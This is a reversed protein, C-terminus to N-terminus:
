YESHAQGDETQYVFGVSDLWDNGAFTVRGSVDFTHLDAGSQTLITENGGSIKSLSGNNYVVYVASGDKNTKYTMVNTALQYATQGNDHRWLTGANVYFISNGDITTALQSSGGSGIQYIPIQSNLDAEASVGYLEGANNIWYVMNGAAVAEKLNTSLTAMGFTKGDGQDGTANTLFLKTGNMVAFSSYIGNAGYGAPLIETSDDMTLGPTTILQNRGSKNVRYLGNTGNQWYLIESADGSALFQLPAMSRGDPDDYVSKSYSSVKEADPWRIYVKQQDEFIALSGKNSFYDLKAHGTMETGSMLETKIENLDVISVTNDSHLVLFPSAMGSPAIRADIVDKDLAAQPETGSVYSSYYLMGQNIYGFGSFGLKGRLDTNPDLVINLEQPTGSADILYYKEGNKGIAQGGVSSVYIPSYDQLGQLLVATNNEGRLFVSGTSVDPTKELTSMQAPDIQPVPLDLIAAEPAVGSGTTNDGPAQEGGIADGPDTGAEEVSPQVQEGAVPLEAQPGQVNVQPAGAFTPQTPAETPPQTPPTWAPQNQYPDTQPPTLTETPKQTTAVTTPETRRTTNQTTQRQLRVDSNDGPFLARILFFALVLVIICAGLILAIKLPKALGQSEGGDEFLDDLDAGDDPGYIDADYQSAQDSLSAQAAMQAAAPDLPPYPSNQRAATYAANGAPTRYQYNPGPATQPRVASAGQGPNGFPPQFPQQAGGFSAPRAAARAPRGQYMGPRSVPVPGAPPVARRQQALAGPNQHLRAPPMVAPQGPAYPPRGNSGFPTQGAPASDQARDNQPLSSQHFDNGKWQDAM